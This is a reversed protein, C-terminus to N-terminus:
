IRPAREPGGNRDPELADHRADGAAACPIADFSQLPVLRKEGLVSGRAQAPEGASDSGIEGDAGDEHAVEDPGLWRRGSRWRAHTHVLAREVVNQRADPGSFKLTVSGPQGALPPRTTNRMPMRGREARM